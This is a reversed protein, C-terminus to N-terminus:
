GKEQDILGTVEGENPFRKGQNKKSYVLRGDCKVDFIGGGGPILKIKSDPYKAKLEAELRSAEPLYNWVNCYEISIDM